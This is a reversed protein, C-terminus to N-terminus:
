LFPKAVSCRFNIKFESCEFWSLLFINIYTHCLITSEDGFFGNIRKKWIEQAKHFISAWAMEFLSWFFPMGKLLTQSKAEPVMPEPAVLKPVHAEVEKCPALAKIVNAWRGLGM